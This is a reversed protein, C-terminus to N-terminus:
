NVYIKNVIQLQQSILHFNNIPCIQFISFKLYYVPSLGFNTKKNKKKSINKNQETSNFSLIIFIHFFDLRLYKTKKTQKKKVQM